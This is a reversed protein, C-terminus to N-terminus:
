ALVRGGVSVVQLARDYDVRHRMLKGEIPESRPGAWSTEPASPSSYVWRLSLAHAVKEPTAAVRANDSKYTPWDAQLPSVAYCVVGCVIGLIARNM